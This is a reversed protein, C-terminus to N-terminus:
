CCIRVTLFERMLTKVTELDESARPAASDWKQVAIAM